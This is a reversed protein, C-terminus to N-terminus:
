PPCVHLAIHFRSLLRLQTAGRSKSAVTRPPKCHRPRPYPQPKDPCSRLGYCLPPPLFFPILAVSLRSLHEHPCYRTGVSNCYVTPIQACPTPLVLWRPFAWRIDEGWTVAADRTVCRCCAGADSPMIPQFQLRVSLSLVTHLLFLMVCFDYGADCEAWVAHEGAM